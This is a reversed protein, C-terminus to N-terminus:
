ELSRLTVHLRSPSSDETGQESFHQSYTTYSAQDDPHEDSRAKHRDGEVISGSAGRWPRKTPGSERSPDMEDRPGNPFSGVYSLRAVYIVDNDLFM